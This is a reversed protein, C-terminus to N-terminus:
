HGRGESLAGAQYEGCQYVFQLTHSRPDYRLTTGGHPGASAPASARRSTDATQRLSLSKNRGMYDPGNRGGLRGAFFLITLKVVAVRQLSAGSSISRLEVGSLKASRLSLFRRQALGSSALNGRWRHHYRLTIGGHPIRNKKYLGFWEAESIASM